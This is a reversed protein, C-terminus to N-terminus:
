DQLHLDPIHNQNKCFHYFEVCNNITWAYRIDQGPKNEDSMSSSSAHPQPQQQFYFGGLGVAGLPTRRGPATANMESSTNYTTPQHSSGAAGYGIADVAPAASAAQTTM